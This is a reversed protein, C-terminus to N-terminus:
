GLLPRNLQTRWCAPDPGSEPGALYCEWLDDSTKLGNTENSQRAAAPALVVSEASAPQQCAASAALAFLVLKSRATGLM